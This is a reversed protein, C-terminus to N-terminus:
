TRTYLYLNQLLLHMCCLVKFKKCNHLHYITSLNNIRYCCVCWVVTIYPFLPNALTVVVINYLFTTKTGVVILWDILRWMFLLAHKRYKPATRSSWLTNCICHFCMSFVHSWQLQILITYQINICNLVTTLNCCCSVITM